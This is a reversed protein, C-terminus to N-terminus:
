KGTQELSLGHAAAAKDGILVIQHNAKDVDTIQISLGNLGAQVRYHRRDFHTQPLEDNVTIRLISTQSKEGSLTPLLDALAIFLRKLVADVM